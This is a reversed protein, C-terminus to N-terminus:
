IPNLFNKFDYNSLVLNMVLVSEYYIWMLFVRVDLKLLSTLNNLLISRNWITWLIRFYEFAKIKMSSMGKTARTKRMRLRTVIKAGFHINLNTVVFIRLRSWKFSQFFLVLIDSIDSIPKMKEKSINLTFGIFYKSM